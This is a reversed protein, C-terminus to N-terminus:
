FIIFVNVKFFILVFKFFLIFNPHPPELRLGNPWFPPPSWDKLGAM